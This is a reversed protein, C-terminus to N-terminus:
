GAWVHQRGDSWAYSATSAKPAREARLLGSRAWTLRRAGFVRTQLLHPGLLLQPEARRRRRQQKPAPAATATLGGETNSNSSNSSQGKKAGAGSNRGCQRRRAHAAGSGRDISRRTRKGGQKVGGRGRDRRSEHDKGNTAQAPTLLGSRAWAATSAGAAPAPEQISAM